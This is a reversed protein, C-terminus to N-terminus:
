DRTEIKPKERMVTEKLFAFVDPGEASAKERGAAANEMHELKARDLSGIRDDILKIVNRIPSYIVMPGFIIERDKGDARKGIIKQNGIRFAKPAPRYDLIEAFLDLCQAVGDIDERELSRVGDQAIDDIDAETYTLDLGAICDGRVMKVADEKKCVLVDSDKLIKIANRISVMEKITPSRRLVVDDVTTRYVPLDNDLALIHGRHTESEFLYLDLDRERRHSFPGMDLLRRMASKDTKKGADIPGISSIVTQTLGDIEIKQILNEKFSM